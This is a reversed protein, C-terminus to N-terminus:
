SRKSRRRVSTAKSPAPAIAQRRQRIGSAAKQRKVAELVTCAMSNATVRDVAFRRELASAADVVNRANLGKPVWVTKDGLTVMGGDGFPSKTM